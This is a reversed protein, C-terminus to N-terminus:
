ALITDLVHRTEKSSPAPMVCVTETDAEGRYSAAASATVDRRAASPGVFQFKITKTGRGDFGIALNVEPGSVIFVEVM